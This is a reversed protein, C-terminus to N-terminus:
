SLLLVINTSGCLNRIEETPRRPKRWLGTVEGSKPEFTRRLEGDRFVM